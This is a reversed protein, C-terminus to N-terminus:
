LMRSHWSSALPKSFATHLEGLSKVLPDFVLTQGNISGEAYLAQFAERSLTHVSGDAAQYSFLMRNLFDVGISQSLAQVFQLSKDISCGSAGAQAEEVALVLFRHHLLAAAAQLQQNHATWYKVFTQSEALAKAAETATLPRTATYIWVRAAPSLANLEM